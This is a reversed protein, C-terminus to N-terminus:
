GTPRAWRRPVSGHSVSLDYRLDRDDGRHVVLCAANLVIDAAVAYHDSVVDPVVIYNVFELDSSILIWDLRAGKDGYTSLGEAHPRFVQLDLLEALYKLSSEESQWDTNFDGMLVFLPIVAFVDKRIAEYATNGLISVAAEFSGLMLWVGLGSCIALAVGIHVGLFIFLILLGLMYLAIDGGM